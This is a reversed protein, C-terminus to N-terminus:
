AFVLRHKSDEAPAAQRHLKPAVAADNVNRERKRISLLSSM